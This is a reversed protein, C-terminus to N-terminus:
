TIAQNYNGYWPFAVSNPSVIKVEGSSTYIKLQVNVSDAGNWDRTGIYKSPEKFGYVFQRNLSISPQPNTVTHTETREFWIGAGISRFRVYLEVKVINSGNAVAILGDFKLQGVYHSGSDPKYITIYVNPAAEVEVVDARKYSLINSEYTNGFSDSVVVKYKSTGISSVSDSLSNGLQNAIFTSWTQGNDSSKLVKTETIVNDQDTKVIEIIFNCVNQTCTREESGQNDMWRIVVTPDILASSYYVPLSIDGSKCVTSIEVEYDDKDSLNPITFTNTAPNPLFNTWTQETKKRYRVFFSMGQTLIPSGVTINWNLPM